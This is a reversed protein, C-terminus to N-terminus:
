NSQGTLSDPVCFATDLYDTCTSGAPCDTEATCLRTCFAESNRWSACVQELCSPHDLVVCNFDSGADESACAETISNSLPCAEFLADEACGSASLAALCALVGLLGARVPVTHLLRQRVRRRMSVGHGNFGCPNQGRTPGTDVSGM